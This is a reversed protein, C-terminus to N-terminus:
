LKKESDEMSGQPPFKIRAGPFKMEIQDDYFIIIVFIIICRIKTKIEIPFGGIKLIAYSLVFLETDIQDCLWRYSSELVSVVCVPIYVTM